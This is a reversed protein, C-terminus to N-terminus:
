SARWTSTAKGANDRAALEWEFTDDSVFRWRSISSVGQQPM